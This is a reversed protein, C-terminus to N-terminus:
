AEIFQLVWEPFEVPTFIPDGNRDRIEHYKGTSPNRVFNHGFISESKEVVPAIDYQDNDEFGYDIHSIWLTGPLHAGLLNSNVKGLLDRIEPLKSENVIM